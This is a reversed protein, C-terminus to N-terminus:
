VPMKPFRHRIIWDRVVAVLGHREAEPLSAILQPEYALRAIWRGPGRTFAHTGGTEDLFILWQEGTLSAVRERPYVSLAVRKILTALAIGSGDVTDLLALAERRYCNLQRHRIARVLWCALVVALAGGVVLWGPAPPWWPVPAPVIVDHLRDLSASDPNM